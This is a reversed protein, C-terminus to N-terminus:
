RSSCGWRDIMGRLYTSINSGPDKPLPWNPANDDNTGPHNVFQNLNVGNIATIRKVLLLNPSSPTAEALTAGIFSLHESNGTGGLDDDGVIVLMKKV